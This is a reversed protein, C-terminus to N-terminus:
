LGLTLKDNANKNAMKKMQGLGKHGDRSLVKGQEWGVHIFKSKSKM